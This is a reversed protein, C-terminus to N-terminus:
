PRWTPSSTPPSCSRGTRSSVSLQERFAMVQLPDFGHTPEDLLLVPPDHVLAISLGVRQRFGTSCQRVRLSRVPGIGCLGVTREVAEELRDGGLGHARAAFRLLDEVVMDGYLPTDGPLYGIRRRVELPDGAADHGAVSISGSTPLLYTALMKLMTSKGAGNPGVFGVIEGREVRFSVDDVATIAGAGSGFVRTVAEVSIVRFGGGPPAGALHAAPQPRCGARLPPLRRSRGLAPLLPRGAGRRRHRGHAPRPDRGPQPPRRHLAGAGPPHGRRHGADAGRRGAAGRRLPRDGGGRLAARLAGEGELEGRPARAEPRHEGALPVRSAGGAVPGTTERTRDGAHARAIAHARGTVDRPEYREMAIVTDAEGFYDGTGGMVLVTSVGAEEHLQRVRDIFPRVPEQERAVLQQMRGDRIMFNTAATDEDVLLCRTGAELAEVIAAAQSTSGSAHGTCFFANDHEFPLDGIFPSLDVGATSRGDEARVAVAAPDTVVRERGDGPRHDYVGRALASLLTSKGHFGGGVILTVGEPIGMGTVPGANPTPLEVRLSPPSRFPVAGSLPRDDVGSRRPLVAGDAVFGVWGGETLAERLAAADEVTRTWEDIEGEDCSECRLARAVIGPLRRCLLDAAARGLVRRGAAPLGAVFRAEVSGEDDILVCTRELVQQGPRDIAIRGSHGSGAGRPSDGAEDSFRLALYSCLARRRPGATFTHPPFGAVSPDLRVRMRSPAAFPDAQVHDVYLRFPVEAEGFDWPGRLDRYARYGSGDIGELLPAWADPTM